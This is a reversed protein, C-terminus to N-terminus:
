QSALKIIRDSDASIYRKLAQRHEKGSRDILRLTPYGAGGFRKMLDATQAQTLLIHIGKLEHKLITQEWPRRKTRCGFYVFTIPHGELKEHLLKGYPLDNMCPPCWPGWFDLILAQGPLSARLREYLEDGSLQPFEHLQIEQEDIESLSAPPQEELQQLKAAIATTEKLANQELYELFEHYKPHETQEKLLGSVIALAEPTTPLRSIKMLERASPDLFPILSPIELFNPVLKSQAIGEKASRQLLFALREEEFPEGQRRAEILSVLEANEQAAGENGPMNLSRMVIESLLDTMDPGPEHRLLRLSYRHLYRPIRAQSNSAALPEFDKIDSWFPLSNLDLPLDDRNRNLNALLQTLYEGLIEQRGWREYYVPDFDRAIQLYEDRLARMKVTLAEHNLDSRAADKMRNGLDLQEQRRFHIFENVLRSLNGDPGSFLVGTAKYKSGKKMQAADLDIRLADSLIIQGYYLNGVKLWGQQYAYIKPVTLSYTGNGIYEFRESTQSFPLTVLAVTVAVNELDAEEPANAIVVEVHLDEAGIKDAFLRHGFNNSPTNTDAFSAAAVSLAIAIVRTLSLLNIM